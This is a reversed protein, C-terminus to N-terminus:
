TEYIAYGTKSSSAAPKARQKKAGSRALAKTWRSFQKRFQDPKDKKLMDYYEEVHIGFIHERHESADFSTKSKEVDTAKGRKNTVVEAKTIHTGPFRKTKHPINLGGDCAGKLAGFVRNGTTTRVLGVDLFAKFPRREPNTSSINWLKGDAAAMGVFQSGM